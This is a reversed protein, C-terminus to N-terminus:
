GYNVQLSFVNRTNTKPSMIEANRGKLKFHSPRDNEFEDVVVNGLRSTYRKPLHWYNNYAGFLYPMLFLGVNYSSLLPFIPLFKKFPGSGVSGCDSGSFIKCRQENM